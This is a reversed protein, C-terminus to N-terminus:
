KSDREPLGLWAARRAATVEDVDASLGLVCTDAPAAQLTVQFELLEDRRFVHVAVEDGPSYTQLMAELNKGGVRIGDIAILVDGASLGAAQAAGGDLVQILSAGESGNGAIRVGLVVLPRTRKPDAPKGGKDRSSEAPRLEMIIGFRQLLPALDLDRTDRLAQDFFDDLAVGSIEAALQEIAGEPVGRGPKGYRQWLARMLDDLSVAGASRERLTLDLALAVMAGKAYYSVVANPANEDQKYFKTWADFSSEAVTQKLRGSGRLVRTITQALLELYSEASIRQSRVLALEDYYSTIGEFAWLQRTYSERSLDYPVFVAPKIRKVNWTHFYEHSCLGLFDRYEDSVPADGDRPLSARSCLLSCSARHELGGYGEGVAMVLFVYRELEPLEGFLAVHHNCIETLDRCLRAMAARHRGTVVIDHPVGAVEFTALSFEGMEVPHDVLEEYDDAGYLGFGYPEAGARRMATAVRWHRYRDGAPPRIEVTCAGDDQGHVRLFVSTGNFYAHTQDLHAARVSLDWAYVEYEITLEGDCPACRWTQKDLKEVEVPQSGCAAKLRVVNKAFDRIMYSGPTWAPLSFVQGGGDPRQVTCVIKLLHAHADAPWICYHITHADSM